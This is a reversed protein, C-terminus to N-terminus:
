LPQNVELGSAYLSITASVTLTFHAACHAWALCGISALYIQYLVTLVKSNDFQWNGYDFLTSFQNNLKCYNTKHLM